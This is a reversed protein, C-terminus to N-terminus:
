VVVERHQQNFFHGRLISEVKESVHERHAIQSEFRSEREAPDDEIRGDHWVHGFLGYATDHGHVPLLHSARENPFTEREHEFM